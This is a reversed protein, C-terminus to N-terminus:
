QCQSDRRVRRAGGKGSDDGASTEAARKRTSLAVSDAASAAAGSAGGGGGGGRQQQKMKEVLRAVVAEETVGTEDSCGLVRQCSLRFEPSGAAYVSFVSRGIEAAHLLAEGDAGGAATQSGSSGGGLRTVCEALHGRLAAVRAAAADVDVGACGDTDQAACAAVDVLFLYAAQDPSAVSAAPAAASDAEESETRSAPEPYACLNVGCGLRPVAASATGATTGGEVEEERFALTRLGGPGAFPVEELAALADGAWARPVVAPFGVISGEGSSGDAAGGSHSSGRVVFVARVLAGKTLPGGGAERLAVVGGSAATDAPAVRVLTETRCGSTLSEVDVSGTCGAAAVVVRFSDVCCLIEAARQRDSQGGPSRAWKKVRGCTVTAHLGAGFGGDDISLTLPISGTIAEIAQLVGSCLTHGCAQQMYGAHSQRSPPPTPPM